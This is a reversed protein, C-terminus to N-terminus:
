PMCDEVVHSALDFQRQCAGCRFQDVGDILAVPALRQGCVCVYGVQRAPVGIVLAQNPVNRTVVAGAAVMAFEGVVVDPLVICGAGLSAGRRILITGTEWDEASKLAGDPNIARPLRDNTLIVGPGVFVGDELTAGHYVCVGNQLKCNDGIRVDFDVYVGKGLICHRGIQANERVQAQHWIQSGEGIVAQASVEATPHIRIM